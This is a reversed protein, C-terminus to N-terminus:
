LGSHRTLIDMSGREQEKENDQRVLAIVRSSSTYGSAWLKLGSLNMFWFPGSVSGFAKTKPKPLLYATDGQNQPEMQNRGKLTHGPFAKASALTHIAAAHMIAVNWAGTDSLSHPSFTVGGAWNVDPNTLHTCV